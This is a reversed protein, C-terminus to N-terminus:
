LWEVSDFEDYHDARVWGRKQQHKVILSMRSFRLDCGSSCSTMTFTLLLTETCVSTVCIPTQWSINVPPKKIMDASHTKVPPASCLRSVAPQLRDAHVLVLRLGVPFMGLVATQKLALVASFCVCIFRKHCVPRRNVCPHCYIQVLIHWLWLEKM